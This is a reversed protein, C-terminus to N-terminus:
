LYQFLQSGPILLSIFPLELSLFLGKILASDLQIWDGM